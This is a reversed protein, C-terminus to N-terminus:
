KEDEVCHINKVKAGNPDMWGNTRKDKGRM